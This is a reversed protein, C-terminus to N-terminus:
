IRIPNSPGAIPPLPYRAYVKPMLRTVRVAIMCARTEGSILVGAFFYQSFKSQVQGFDHLHENAAHYSVLSKRKLHDSQVLLQQFLDRLIRAEISPSSCNLTGFCHDDASSSISSPIPNRSNLVACPITQRTNQSLTLFLRFGTSFPLLQPSRCLLTAKFRALIHQMEADFEGPSIQQSM